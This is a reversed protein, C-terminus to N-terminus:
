QIPPFKQSSFNEHIERIFSGERFYLRSCKGTQNVNNITTNDQSLPTAVDRVFLCSFGTKLSKAFIEDRLFKWRYPSM